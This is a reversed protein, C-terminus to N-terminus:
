GKETKETQQKHKKLSKTTKNTKKEKRILIKGNYLAFYNKLITYDPVIAIKNKSTNNATGGDQYIIKLGTVWVADNILHFSDYSSL